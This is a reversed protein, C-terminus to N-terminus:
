QSEKGYEKLWIKINQTFPNLPSINTNVYRLLDDAEEVAKKLRANEAIMAEAEDAMEEWTVFGRDGRLADFIRKQETNM